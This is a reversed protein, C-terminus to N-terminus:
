EKQNKKENLKNNEKHPNKKHKNILNTSYNRKKKNKFPQTKKTILKSPAPLGFSFRRLPVPL